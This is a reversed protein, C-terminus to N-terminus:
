EDPQGEPAPLEAWERLVRTVVAPDIRRIGGPFQKVPLYGAKVWNSVTRRHVGLRKGAETFSLYDSYRPPSEM